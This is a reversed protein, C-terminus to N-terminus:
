HVFIMVTQFNVYFLEAFYLMEQANPIKSNWFSHPLMKDPILNFGYTVFQCLLCLTLQGMTLWVGLSIKASSEFHRTVLSANFVVLHSSHSFNTTCYPVKLWLQTYATRKHIIQMNETAISERFFLIYWDYVINMVGIKEVVNADVAKIEKSHCALSISRQHYRLNCDTIAKSNTRKNEM